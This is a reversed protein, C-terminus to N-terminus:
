AFLVAAAEDWLTQSAAALLGERAEGILYDRGDARAIRGGAETLFLAGPAHDWPQARWFLAVDDTGLVLRPYQEGACLPIPVPTLKGAIRPEIEARLDAPLYRTALGARPPRAGSARAAVRVGDVYAGHGLHAHLMRDSVPDLIWGGLVVGDQALAIMIAFPTEGAAYNATGDIPDVIWATGEDLGELLTPDASVAEEGVVRSGPLLALLGGTLREESLRDAVTVLDNPGKEMIQDATLARFSPLVVEAAVQRMLASVSAHLPHMM